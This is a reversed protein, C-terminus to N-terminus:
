PQVQKFEVVWVWPDESWSIAGNIQTWLLEFYGAETLGYPNDPACSGDAWIKVGEARADADSIDQLREVRVSVIELLIRSASRPMHISPKWKLGMEDMEHCTARYVPWLGAGMLPTAMAFSERVWLQDGVCGYPCDLWCDRDSEADYIWPWLSGDGEEEITYGPKLKLIRRTQTKSGDLIARVMPASFLIPREKM